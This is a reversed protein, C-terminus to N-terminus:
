ALAHSAFGPLNGVGLDILLKPFKEDFKARLALGAM